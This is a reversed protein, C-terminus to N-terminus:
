RVDGLGTDTWKFEQDQISEVATVDTDNQNPLADEPVPIDNSPLTDERWDKDILDILRERRFPATAMIYETYNHLHIRITKQNSLLFIIFNSM